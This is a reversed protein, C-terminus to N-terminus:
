SQTEEIAANDSVRFLISILLIAAFFTVIAAVVGAALIDLGAQGDRPSTRMVEKLEHREGLHFAAWAAIVATSLTLLFRMVRQYM